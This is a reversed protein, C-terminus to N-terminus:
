EEKKMIKDVIEYPVGVESMNYHPLDAGPQVIVDMKSPSNYFDAVLAYVPQKSTGVTVSTLYWWKDYRKVSLIKLSHYQSSAIYPSKNAILANRIEASTRLDTTNAPDHRLSSGILWGSLPAAILAIFIVLINNKSLNM